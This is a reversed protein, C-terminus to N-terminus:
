GPVATGTSSRSRHLWVHGRGASRHGLLHRIRRLLARRATRELHGRSPAPRLCCCGPAATHGAPRARGPARRVRRPLAHQLRAQRHLRIRRHEDHHLQRRRQGMNNSGDRQPSCPRGEGDKSHGLRRAEARASLKGGRARLDADDGAASPPSCGATTSGSSARGPRGSRTTRACSTAYVLAVLWSVSPGRLPPRAATSLPRRLPPQGVVSSTSTTSTSTRRTPGRSRTPTTRRSPRPPPSRNRHPRTRWWSPRLPRAMAGAGWQGVGTVAVKWSIRGALDPLRAAFQSGDM